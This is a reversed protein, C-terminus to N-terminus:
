GCEGRPNVPTWASPGRAGLARVQFCQKAGTVGPITYVFGTRNPPLTKTNHTFTETVEYGTEDDAEDEWTVSVHRSDVPRSAVVHSPEAPADTEPTSHAANFSALALDVKIEEKSIAGLFFDSSKGAFVLRGAEEDSGDLDGNDCDSGEFLRLTSRVSVAESGRRTLAIRLEGRSEGGACQTVKVLETPHGTSLTVSRNFKRIVKESTGFTEYNHVELTGALVVTNLDAAAAPGATGTSVIPALLAATALAYGLKM